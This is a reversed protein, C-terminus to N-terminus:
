AVLNLKNAAKGAEIKEAQHLADLASLNATKAKYLASSSKIGIAQKGAREALYKANSLYADNDGAFHLQTLAQLALADAEHVHQEAQLEEDTKPPHAPKTETTNKLPTTPTATPNYATVKM